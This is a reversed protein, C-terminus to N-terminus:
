SQARFQDPVGAVKRAASAEVDIWKAFSIIKASDQRSRPYVLWFARGDRAVHDDAPVLRGAALEAAFVIPSGIAVGQGAIAAAIDLHEYALDTRFAEAPPGEGFGRSRYWIAWWDPRGLLPLTPTVLSAEGRLHPAVLPQFVAPFLFMSRLGPWDGHGNRIAVDIAGGALDQATASLDLVVRLDAHEARFRGLRPTLWSAGLSPLTSVSLTEADEDAARRFGARLAAFAESANAAAIKGAPTLTVRQAHRIFLRAGIDQELRRVHYSVAAATTGLERAAGAFGGHRAAAEFARIAVLSPIPPTLM